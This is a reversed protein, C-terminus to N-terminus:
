ILGKLFKEQDKKLSEISDPQINWNFDKFIEVTADMSLNASNAMLHDTSVQRSIWIPNKMCKYDKYLMALSNPSLVLSREATGHLKISIKLEKEFIGKSALRSAFEFIETVTYLTMLVEKVNRSSTEKELTFGYRWQVNEIWDEWFNLYHVFQTSQYLRWIEIHRNYDALGEACNQGRFFEDIKDRVAPYDWGRLSVKYEKVLKQCDEITLKNEVYKTPKIEIEWYGKSKIKELIEKEKPTIM